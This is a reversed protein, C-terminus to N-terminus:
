KERMDTQEEEDTELREVRKWYIWLVLSMCLFCIVFINGFVIGGIKLARQVNDGRHCAALFRITGGLCGAVASTCLNMKLSPKMKRDWIGNRICAAGMYVALCMFVIWEGLFLDAREEGYFIIQVFTVLLLGWFALWCGNHEIKLLKQEQMEDLGNKSKKMTM